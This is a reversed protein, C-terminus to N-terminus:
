RGSASSKTADTNGAPPVGDAGGMTSSHSVPFSGTMGLGSSGGLGGATGIGMQAAPGRGRPESTGRGTPGAMGSGGGPAGAAPTDAAVPAVVVTPNGTGPSGPANANGATVAKDCGALALAALLALGLARPNTM